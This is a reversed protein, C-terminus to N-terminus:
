YRRRRARRRGHTWTIRFGLPLKFSWRIHFAM